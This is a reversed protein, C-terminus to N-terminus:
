EKFNLDEAKKRLIKMCQMTHPSIVMKMDSNQNAYPKYALILFYIAIFDAKYRQLSTKLGCINLNNYIINWLVM